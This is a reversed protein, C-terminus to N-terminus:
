SKVSEFEPKFQFNRNSSVSTKIATMDRIVSPDDALGLLEGRTAKDASHKDTSTWLLQFVQGTTTSGAVPM